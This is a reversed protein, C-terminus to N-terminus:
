KGAEGAPVTPVDRWEEKGTPAGPLPRPAGEYEAIVCTPYHEIWKRQLRDCHPTEVWRLETTAEWIKLEDNYM